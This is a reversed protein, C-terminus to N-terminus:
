MRSKAADHLEKWERYWEEPTFADLNFVYVGTSPWSSADGGAFYFYGAGRVLEEKVGKSRLYTNIGRINPGADRAPYNFVDVRILAAM